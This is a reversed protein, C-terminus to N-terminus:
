RWQQSPAGACATVIVNTGLVAIDGAATLCKGSSHILSGDTGPRWQFNPIDACDGVGVNEDSVTADGAVGLCRGSENLLKGSEDFRWNQNPIAACEWVVVNAPFTQLDGAVHLCKGSPLRYPRLSLAQDAIKKGEQQMARMAEPNFKVAHAASVACFVAAALTITRNM